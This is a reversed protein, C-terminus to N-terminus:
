RASKWLQKGDSYAKSFNGDKVDDVLDLGKSAIGGIDSLSKGALLPIHTNVAEEIAKGIIPASKAANYGSKVQNKIWHGTKSVGNAVNRGFSKVKNFTNSFWGM